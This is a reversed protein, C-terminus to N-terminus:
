WSYLIINIKKGFYWENNKNVIKVFHVILLIHQIIYYLLSNNVFLMNNNIGVRTLSFGRLVWSPIEINNRTL